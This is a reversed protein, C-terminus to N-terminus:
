LRNRLNDFDQQYLGTVREAIGAATRGSDLSGGAANGARVADTAKDILFPLYPSQQYNELFNSQRGPGGLGLADSYQGLATSGATTYPQYDTRTQAYRADLAAQAARAAKQQEKAAKNSGFIQAAGGLLAAGGIIWPM